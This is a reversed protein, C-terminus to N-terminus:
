TISRPIFRCCGVVWLATSRRNQCTVSVSKNVPFREQPQKGPIRFFLPLGILIKQGFIVPDHM